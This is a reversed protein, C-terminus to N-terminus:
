IVLLFPWASKEIPGCELKIFAFPYIVNCLTPHTNISRPIINDETPTTKKNSMNAQKNYIKLSIGASLNSASNSAKDTSL